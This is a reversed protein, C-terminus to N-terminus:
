WSPFLKRFQNRIRKFFGHKGSSIKKDCLLAIDQASGKLATTSYLSYQSGDSEFGDIDQFQNRIRKFFGYKGASIKKDCLLVIDQASDKSVTTSVENQLYQSGDYEFGDIDQFHNRIWKFVGHKGASIKKDCLLVIDNQLYQSGDYEFQDFDENSLSSMTTNSYLTSLEKNPLYQSGDYEFGDVNENSLSTMTKNSYLTSLESSSCSNSIECSRSDLGSINKVSEKKESKYTTQVYKLSQSESKTGIKSKMKLLDSLEVCSMTNSMLTQKRNLLKNMEKFNKVEMVTKSCKSFKRQKEKKYATIENSDQAYANLVEIIEYSTIRDQADMEAKRLLLFCYTAIKVSRLSTFTLLFNKLREKIFDIPVSGM